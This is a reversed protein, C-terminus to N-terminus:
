SQDQQRKQFLEASNDVPTALRLIEDQSIMRNQGSAVEKANYCLDGGDKTAWLPSIIEFETPKGGDDVIVLDGKKFKFSVM